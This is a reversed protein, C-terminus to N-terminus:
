SCQKIPQSRERPRKKEPSVLGNTAKEQMQIAVGKGSRNNLPAEPMRLQQELGSALPNQLRDSAQGTGLGIMVMVM